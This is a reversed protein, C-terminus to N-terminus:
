EKLSLEIQNHVKTSLERMESELKELSVHRLNWIGTRVKEELEKYSEKTAFEGFTENKDMIGASIMDNILGNRFRNADTAWERANDLRGHIQGLDHDIDEEMKQLKKYLKSLAIGLAVVTLILIAEM